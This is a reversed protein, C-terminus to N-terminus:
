WASGISFYITNNREAFARGRYPHALGLRFRYAWDYQLAADLGFEVGYSKMWTREVTDPTCLYSGNVVFSCWAAGTDMFATVSTKQFFLPWLGLGRGILTLPARYEGSVAVARVGAQRGEPFGRVGFTRPETGITVGPLVQLSSGSVGGAGFGVAARHGTVGYAGRVAVVHRSFGPLPLSRSLSARVISEPIGEGELGGNKRERHQVDLSLGDTPSVALRPRQLTSFGAMLLLSSEIYRGSFRPDLFGLLSRPYTRYESQEIEGGVVLYSNTRVRPRLLQATAAFRLDSRALYGVVASTNDYVPAHLWDKGAEVRILPNGLGAYTYAADLTEEKNYFEYSAAVSLVHREIPDRMSTLAGVRLRDSQTTEIIPLWWSLRLYDRGRYPVDAGDVPPAVPLVTVPPTGAPLEMAVAGPSEREVVHYGEAGLEVAVVRRGDPSVDPTALATRTGWVLGIAGTRVDGRYVMARGEHDSVFLVTTDGPEWVPSSVASFARGRPSIVRLEAGRDDMVVVSSAGGREWRAAVIRSGDRSWRPEGWTRDLTGASIVRPPAGRGVQLEVISTTGPETRLAIIRGSERHVDPNSLRAGRTLHRRAIGNGVTLDSRLTWPDTYDLEGQLWRGDALWTPADIGGRRGIRDRRGDLTLSYLGTTTRGDEGIYVLTTDSTFRPYRATFPHSTLARAADDGPAAFRSASGSEARRVSDRWREWQASFREGFAFQATSQFSWPVVRESAREIFSRMARPAEHSMAYAGYIYAGSADPYEPASLSLADLPPLADALAAARVHAPFESGNLRGGIGARSEYHVAIGETVWSPAYTGPFFAPARGFIRQATGWWGRARDLHFIHTLEHTILILNWDAHNALASVDVPPRAYIVIRNTPWVTAYGNTFDVNDALVIEVTGRPPTLEAALRSYALEAHQATREALPALQPLFHVRFHETELTRWDGRPQVQAAAVAPLVGAAAALLLRVCLRRLGLRPLLTRPMPRRSDVGNGASRGAGGKWGYIQGPGSGRMGKVRQVKQPRSLSGADFNQMSQPLGIVIEPAALAEGKPSVTPPTWCWSWAFNPTGGVRTDACGEGGRGIGAGGTIGGPLVGQGKQPVAISGPRGNQGLHPLRTAPAGGLGAVEVATQPPHPVGTVGPTSMKQARQPVRTVTVALGGVGAVPM